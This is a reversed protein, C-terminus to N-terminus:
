LYDVSVTFHGSYPGCVQDPRILLRAGVGFRLGNSTLVGSNSVNATFHEVKIADGPGTLLCSQPLRICYATGAHGQLDFSAARVGGKLLRAGGSRSLDYGGGPLVELVGATKGPVVDGFDLDGLTTLVLPAILVADMAFSLSTSGIVRGNEDMVEMRLPTESSRYVGAPALARIELRGGLKCEAQGTADFVGKFGPLSPKFETVRLEGRPGVLRLNPELFIRFGQGAPGFLRFHAPRPLGGRQLANGEGIWTGEPTLLGGGGTPGALLQGFSLADIRQIEVRAPREAMLAASCLGIVSCSVIKQKLM